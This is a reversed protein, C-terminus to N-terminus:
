GRLWKEIEALLKTKSTAKELHQNMGSGLARNITKEDSSSMLAIIPITKYNSFKKFIKGDRIAMTTDYGNMVPMEGDMLILDVKEEDLIKLADRGNEAHLTIFGADRLIKSTIKINAPSDEVLLVVRGGQARTDSVVQKVALNNEGNQCINFYLKVTTGVGKKSDIEITGNHLRVLQLVIPMGIGHSDINEAEASKVINKGYGALIMEIEKQDMGIGQDSVKICIQKKDSTLETSIIISTQPISYKIANTIINVLIQKMRRIDCNLKPLNDEFKTKVLVHHRTALSKNLSIIRDILVTVDCFQMKDSKFEGADIQNTDLLDEVFHMLEESQDAITEVMQLEENQLIESKNKNDLIIRSLGLIGFVYNKIDHSSKALFEAKAENARLLEANSIELKRLLEKERKASEKVSNLINFLDLLEKNKPKSIKYNFDKESIKLALQSLEFVPHVIKHYIRRFLIVCAFVILLLYLSQRLVTYYIRQYSKEKDYFVVVTMPSSTVKKAYVFGSDKSFINQVNLVGGEFVNSVRTVDSFYNEIFKRNKDDFNDSSFVASNNQMVAFGFIENSITKSIKSVVREVDLGFVLTGLYEGNKSFVGMGVPVVKRGSLAGLVPQGFVLRNPIRTTVQLYDRNSVDVPNKIVGGAGDASMKGDKDIWSFANWTISIDIQSINNVFSALIKAIKNQSLVSENEEIQRTAYYLQYKLYDINYSISKEIQESVIRSEEEISIKERDVSFKVFLCGAFFIGIVSIRYFWVFDKTLSISFNLLFRKKM